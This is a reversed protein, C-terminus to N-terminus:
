LQTPPPASTNMLRNYQRQTQGPAVDAKTHLQMVFFCLMPSYASPTWFTIICKSAIETFGAHLIDHMDTRESLWNNGIASSHRLNHKLKQRHTLVLILGTCSVNGESAHIIYLCYIFSETREECYIGHIQKLLFVSNIHACYYSDKSATM